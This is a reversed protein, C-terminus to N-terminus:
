KKSLKKAPKAAEKLQALETRLDGERVEMKRRAEREYELERKMRVVEERARKEKEEVDRLQSLLFSVMMALSEPITEKLYKHPFVDSLPFM